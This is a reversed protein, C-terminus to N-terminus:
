LFMELFIPWRIPTHKKQLSDRSVCLASQVLSITYNRIQRGGKNLVLLRRGHEDVRVRVPGETGDTRNLAVQM